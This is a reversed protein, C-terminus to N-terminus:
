PNLLNANRTFNYTVDTNFPLIGRVYQTIARNAKAIGTPPVVILDQATLQLDQAGSAQGELVETLNTRYITYAHEGSPRLLLVSGLDADLNGWGAEAILKLLSLRHVFPYRGPQRVEGGIFVSSDAPEQVTVNVSIANQYRPKLITAIEERLAAVTKGRAAMEGIGFVYIQGDDGVRTPVSNPNIFLELGSPTLRNDVQERANVQAVSISAEIPNGFYQSAREQLTVKVEAATAGLVPISGLQGVVVDGDVGVSYDGSLPKLQDLFSRTVAWSIRPTRLLRRYAATSSQQLEDLTRGAARLTMGVRPLVVNGNPDVPVVYSTETDTVIELRLEDGVALHYPVAPDLAHVFAIRLQNGKEIRHREDLAELPHVQILLSDRAAVRYEVSDVQLQSADITQVPQGPQILHTGPLPSACSVLGLAALLLPLLTFPHSFM